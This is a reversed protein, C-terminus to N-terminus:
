LHHAATVVALALVTKVESRMETGKAVVGVREDEGGLRHLWSTSETEMCKGARSKNM